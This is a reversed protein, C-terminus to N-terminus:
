RAGGAHEAELTRRLADLRESWFVDLWDRLEAIRDARARYLRRNGRARVSVLGAERLVKLHQSAAPATLACQRALEGATREGDRTLQLM